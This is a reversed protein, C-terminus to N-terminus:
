DWCFSFFTSYSCMMSGVGAMVSKLFPHAYIEHMTRDDIDSSEMTRKYEQESYIVDGRWLFLILGQFRVKRRSAKCM